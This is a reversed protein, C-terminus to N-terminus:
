KISTFVIEAKKLRTSIESRAFFDNRANPIVEVIVRYINELAEKLLSAYHSFDDSVYNYLLYFEKRYKSIKQIYDENIKKLENLSIKGESYNKLDLLFGENIFKLSELRTRFWANSEEKNFM